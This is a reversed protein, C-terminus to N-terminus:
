SGKEVEVLMEEEGKSCINESTQPLVGVAASSILIVHNENVTEISECPQIEQFTLIFHNMCEKLELFVYLSQQVFLDKTHLNIPTSFVFQILKEVCYVDFM